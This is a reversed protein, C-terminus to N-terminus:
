RGFNSLGYSKLKIGPYLREMAISNMIVYLNNVACRQLDGRCVTVEKQFNGKYYIKRKDDSLYAFETTAPKMFLETKGKSKIFEMRGAAATYVPEGGVAIQGGSITATYKEGIEATVTDTGNPDLQFSNWKAEYFPLAEYLRSMVVQGREDFEPMVTEMKLIISMARSLGGPMILDNGAHMSISPTSSGGNWDTMILGKFGWEGRALNTCLDFSDATPVGNILNYSTMISMPQAEKVAIEFGKLYIERLSRQGIRSNVCSRNTEQNNAAYHKICVGVGPYQQLGKTFAAAMAGTLRPDESYYEFNRGCLPDRHINIGPALLISIGIEAMEVAIAYGVQEIVSLDFSQALLTGVPWATCYHHCETEEGSIAHRAKFEQKVRIGGPGDALIMSPIGYDQELIHTTEGAAGPVSESNGGVVPNNEDSVGWGTGCNLISLQKNTLQAALEELSARHEVVDLLCLDRKQVLKVQEYPMVPQYSPDTTYTIVKEDQYPSRCDVTRIDSASVPIVPLNDPVKLHYAGASKRSIEKLEGDLPLETRVQETVVTADLKIAFSAKTNRSSNGIHFVYDGKSLIYAERNEHYGALSRIPIRIQLEQTEGPQLVRTKQFAALEQVPMEMESEPATYYVQVVESGQMKGINKVLVRVTVTEDRYVANIFDASFETYSLGYGFEYVPKINFGDFYRYGVYIGEEYKELETNGDQDAFTASAPYDQYAAAWTDTLKGSPTVTGNLIDRLARGGEQGAQGMLLISDTGSKVIEKMDIVGGVNLVVVTKPFAKRLVNLNNIETQSLMYDGIEVVEDGAAAKKYMHRDAGEGSNRSIVYISTDCGKAFSEAAEKTIMQDPYAFTEMFNATKIRKQKDYFAAYSRLFDATVVQYDGQEFADLINIHYRKSLDIDADGGGSLGGNFPDGSGTGGRVTRVAGLGFLAARGSKQLPLVSNSNKLLVMGQTAAHYSIEANKKERESMPIKSVNM